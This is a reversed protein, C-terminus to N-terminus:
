LATPEERSAPTLAEPPAPEPKERSFTLHEALFGFSEGVDPLVKAYLKITAYVDLLARYAADEALLRADSLPRLKSELQARVQAERKSAREAKQLLTALKGATMGPVHVDRRATLTRVTQDVVREFGDKPKLLKRRAETTLTVTPEPELKVSAATKKAKKASVKGSPAASRGGLVAVRATTGSKTTTKPKTKVTKATKKAKAKVPVKASPRAKIM